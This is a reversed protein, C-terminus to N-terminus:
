PLGVQVLLTYGNSKKVIVVLTLDNFVGFSFMSM